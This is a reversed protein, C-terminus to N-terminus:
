RWRGILWLLGSLVASLLLCTTIPIYLRYGPRDIRIDGPLKGLLPLGPAYQLLLGLALLALGAFVFMRALHNMDRLGHLDRM